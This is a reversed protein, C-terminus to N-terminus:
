LSDWIPQKISKIEEDMHLIAGSLNSNVQQLNSEINKFRSEINHNSNDHM